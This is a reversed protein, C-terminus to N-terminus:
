RAALGLMIVCFEDYSVRDDAWMHYKDMIMDVAAEDYHVGFNQFALYLNKFENRDLYGNGDVDLEQFKRRLQEETIPLGAVNNEVDDLQYRAHVNRSKPAHRVVTNSYPQAPSYPVKALHGRSMYTSLGVPNYPDALSTANNLRDNGYSPYLSHFLSDPAPVLPPDTSNETEEDDNDVNSNNNKVDSSQGKSLADLSTALSVPSATSWLPRHITQLINKVPRNAVSSPPRTSMVGSASSSSTTSVAGASRPPKLFATGRPQLMSYMELADERVLVGEDWDVSLGCRRLNVEPLGPNAAFVECLASVLADNKLLPLDSMDLAVLGNVRTLAVLLALAGDDKIDNNSIDLDKITHAGALADGLHQMSASTIKTNALNIVELNSVKIAGCLQKVCADGLANDDLHLSTLETCHLLVDELVDTSRSTIDVSSLDLFKIKKGRLVQFLAKMGSDELPNHQLALCTITTSEGCEAFASKMEECIEATIRNNSFDIKRIERGRLAAIVAPCSQALYNNALSLDVLRPNQTLVRVLAAGGEPSIDNGSVDLSTLTRNVVLADCLQALGERMLKNRGLRLVRVSGNTRLAAAIREGGVRTIKNGVLDLTHITTTHAILNAIPVTIDDRFGCKRLDVAEIRPHEAIGDLLSALGDTTFTANESLNIHRLHQNTHLAAGLAMAADTTIRTGSLDVSTLSYNVALGRAIDTFDASTLARHALSMVAVSDDVVGFRELYPVEELGSNTFM